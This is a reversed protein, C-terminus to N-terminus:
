TNISACITHPLHSSREISVYTCIRVAAFQRRAGGGRGRNRGDESGGAVAVLTRTSLPQSILTFLCFRSKPLPATVIEKFDLVGMDSLAHADVEVEFLFESLDNSHGHYRYVPLVRPGATLTAVTPM